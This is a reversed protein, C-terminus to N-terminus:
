RTALDENRGRWDPQGSLVGHFEHLADGIHVGPPAISLERILVEHPGCRRKVVSAARRVAGSAEFYRLAIAADALYSVDVPMSPSEGIMGQQNMTLLTVVNRLALYTLLEHMHMALHSEDPMGAMYGNLSDIVVLRADQEEVHARVMHAFEGPSFEAPNVQVIEVQRAEIRERLPMQLGDTRALYARKTEDFLYIVAREGRGASALAFQSCLTSKGAGSPGMVLLSSGRDLGGGLMQDLAPIGSAIEARDEPLAHESANLRPYVVLGGTKLAVDHFGERYDVGRLKHVRLRRRPKGYDPAAQYLGIIGHVVGEGAPDSPQELGHEQILLVTAGMGAFHERLQLLQRRYRLPDRALLKIDSFPDFVVRRPRVRAAVDMIARTVDHLEIDGPAFFSYETDQLAGGESGAQSVNVINVGALDWGHARATSRLQSETESLTCWLVTEGRRVGELLFQLGLTTKGAGSAGELLYLQGSPLGGKLIDDLGAIGTPDIAPRDPQM